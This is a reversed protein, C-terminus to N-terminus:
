TDMEARLRQIREELEEIKEILAIPPQHGVYTATDSCHAPLRSKLDKLEEELKALEDTKSAM